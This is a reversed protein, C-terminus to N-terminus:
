KKKLYRKAGEKTRVLESTKYKGSKIQNRRAKQITYPDGTSKGRKSNPTSKKFSLAVKGGKHKSTSSNNPKKKNRGTLKSM